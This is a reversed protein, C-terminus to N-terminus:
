LNVVWGWDLEAGISGGNTNIPIDDVIDADNYNQFGIFFEMESMPGLANGRYVKLGAIEDQHILLNSLIQIASMKVCTRDIDVMTFDLKSLLTPYKEKVSSLMGLVMAGSGCTPESIRLVKKEPFFNGTILDHNAIDSMLKCVHFPTFFQGLCKKHGRGSLNMYIGGLLDVYPCDIVAQAYMRGLEFLQKRENDDIPRYHKGNNVGFGTLLDDLFLSFFNDSSLNWFRDLKSSLSDIHHRSKEISM